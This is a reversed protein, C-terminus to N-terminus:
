FWKKRKFYLLMGIGLTLMIGLLGFYGWEWGLEPMYKFNMGYIGALFTLPIFITAIITLTQMVENMRNGMASMYFELMSSILERFTEATDLILVVHDQVDAMFRDTSEPMLPSEAKVLHALAEQVPWVQKHFLIMERRFRHIKELHDPDIRDLMVTELTEIDDGMRALTHFYHDVVADILAYALYGSGSTRIQGRGSRLRKRVPDFVTDEEEQFSILLRDWAILSIQSSGVQRDSPSYNLQKLIMFFHDDLDEFKPRHGPNAIDELTLAHINLKQGLRQLLETDQIGCIHIWITHRGNVLALAQDLNEVRTETLVDQGFTTVSIRSKGARGPLPAALTGPADGAKKGSKKIFRTM